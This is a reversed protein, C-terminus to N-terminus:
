VRNDGKKDIRRQPSRRPALSASSTASRFRNLVRPNGRHRLGQKVAQQFPVVGVLTAILLRPSGSLILAPDDAPAASVRVSGAAAEITITEDGANLEVAVPPETPTLDHLFLEAPITFWIARFAEEDAHEDTVVLPAGWRVLEELVPRLAEGRPTLKFLTTAVPPPAEYREVVGSEELQRLRDILLNTAIGPLGGLLDTYRSPGRLLLERVILLNWRDGIVDLSKAVACFQGYSKV